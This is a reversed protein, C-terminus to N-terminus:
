SYISLKLYIMVIYLTIGINYLISTGKDFKQIGNNQWFVCDQIKVNSVQKCFFFSVLLKQSRFDKTKIARLM